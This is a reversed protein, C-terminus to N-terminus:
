ANPRLKGYQEGIEKSDPKARKAAESASKMSSILEDPLKWTEKSSIVYMETEKGVGPAVEAALKAGYVALLTDPLSSKPHHLELALKISAHTAGSGTIGYGIKDFPIIQGPHTILYVHTGGDDIGAVIIEAGLNFQNTQMFLQAFIQGQPQLYAPLTGGKGRFAIFDPGLSPAVITREIQENRLIGYEDLVARGIIDISQTPSNAYKARARRLIEAVHLSNGSGMALCTQNMAEIKSIPPEFEVNLPAGITFMRDAALVLNKGDNCSAAICITM